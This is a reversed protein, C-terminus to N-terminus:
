RPLLELASVHRPRMMSFHRRDLTALKPEDLREVIALVTADVFGVRADAYTRIIESARRCDDLSPEALQFANIAIQDLLDAMAAPQMRQGLWYDIEVLVPSPVVLPETATSLLDACRRHERDDQNLAALLPGTDIVLAV